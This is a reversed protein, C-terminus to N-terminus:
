TRDAQKARSSNLHRQITEVFQDVDIPKEIYENPPSIGADDVIKQFDFEQEKEMGSIILVPIDKLEDHKQLRVYLSLGSKEPMMIDLCILDPKNKMAAAFGDDANSATVAKYNCSDLIASLYEVVDPEDDVILVTKSM